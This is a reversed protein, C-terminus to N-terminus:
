AACALGRNALQLLQTALVIAGVVVLGGAATLQLRREQFVSLSRPSPLAALFATNM